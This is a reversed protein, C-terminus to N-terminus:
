KDPVGEPDRTAALQVRRMEFMKSSPVLRDRLANIMSSDLAPWVYGESLNTHELTEFQIPENLVAACARVGINGIHMRLGDTHGGQLLNRQPARGTELATFLSQVMYRGRGCTYRRYPKNTPPTQSGTIWLEDYFSAQYLATQFLGSTWDYDFGESTFARRTGPFATALQQFHLGLAEITSAQRAKLYKLLTDAWVLLERGMAIKALEDHINGELSIKKEDVDRALAHRAAFGQYYSHKILKVPDINEHFDHSHRMGTPTAQLLLNLPGPYRKFRELDDEQFGYNGLAQICYRCFCNLQIAGSQEGMAWLEQGDFVVGTPANVDATVKAADKLLALIARQFPRSNICCSQSSNGHSDVCETGDTSLFGLNPNVVLWLQLKNKACYKAVGSLSADGNRDSLVGARAWKSNWNPGATSLLPYVVGRPSHGTRSKMMDCLQDVGFQEVLSAGGVDLLGAEHNSGSRLAQSDSM